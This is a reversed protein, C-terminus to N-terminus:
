LSIDLYDSPNKLRNINNFLIMKLRNFEDIKITKSNFINKVIVYLGKFYEFKLKFQGSKNLSKLVRTM